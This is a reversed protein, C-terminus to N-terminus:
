DMKAGELGKKATDIAGNYSDRIKGGVHKARGKNKQLEDKFTDTAAGKVDFAKAVVYDKAEFAKGVAADKTKFATGVVCDKADFAAGVASDKVDFAAGKVEVAKAVVADKVELAKDLVAVAKVAVFGKADAAADRAYDKVEIAAEKVIPLVGKFHEDDEDQETTIETM